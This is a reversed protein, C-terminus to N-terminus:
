KRDIGDSNEQLINEFKEIQIEPSFLELALKRCNASLEDYKDKDMSLINYMGLALDESDKLKARYGTEGPIVLDLAVGMEFSIVPTGCMISQNIMSPGSDEISPCIFVDAAQYASAIGKTNDLMGLYHYEFPILDIIEEIERGAIILYIDNELETGRIKKKFYKLSALMYHMGKRKHNMYVSGFFIIKKSIPIGIEQRLKEKDIPKFLNSDISLLIKHITKNKFLSSQKAQRYQWESAAILQIDTQDIYKKKYELNKYSIDFPDSSFLGPCNGCRNQYGTCDWAYHCGGTLPAMDYMLWYVPANTKISLEFINKTNIFDKAFLVVIADANIQAIRLLRNTNYILKQEHLEHIHYDPNTVITKKLKLRRMIKKLLEKKRLLYRTEVSVIGDPYTTDFANVILKVNHGRNRFGNLLDMGVIGSAHLPNTDNFIVINM